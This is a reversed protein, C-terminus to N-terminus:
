EHIVHLNEKSAKLESESHWWRRWRNAAKVEVPVKFMVLYQHEGGALYDARGIVVGAVKRGRATVTQGLAYTFPRAPPITQKFAAENQAKM